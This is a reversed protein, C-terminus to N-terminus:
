ARRFAAENLENNSITALLEPMENALGSLNRNSLGGVHIYENEPESVAWLQRTSLISLFGGLLTIAFGTYVVPVGPDRKLLLGTAPIVDVVRLPVGKIEQADGGPRLGAILQGGEDFVQVPGAESSVSMLIPEKGNQNTPIVLGWVQEGLQPFEQLPLQLKPSKGLQLTIAALSWDAQYVTMGKIRLPHNVSVERIEGDEERQDTLELTSRFQEVRGAPDREIKFTNLTLTLQNVGERNLLQFSRGPALFKEVRQGKVAGWSAGFLILILGLHILPPGIRGLAGKRAALRGSKQKVQWGKKQLHVALQNLGQSSQATPITEAIALKSLQQPDKYDIWNLAAQVMPWQRRWSCIMLSLGLWGLLALFWNSSYVQNFQLRILTKGNIFGLWPHKGYVELYNGIPEEQPIATGIASALAIVLLLFIAVKLSSAWAIIKRLVQM